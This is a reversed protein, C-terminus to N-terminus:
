GPPAAAGRYRRPLRPGFRSVVEYPITGLRDAWERATISATGQTGLLVVDDGPRVAPGDTVEVVFQDMTVAGRIPRRVGGILVEGGSSGLRRDVGDAYGLPVTAVVADREFVHHWGYSVGEGAAVAKVLTVEARVSMAPRLDVAAALGPAPEIGYLVIGPRVLDHHAAPLTLVAASNAAHCRGPEVGVDRLARLVADFRALATANEPRDPEDACALHTFTGELVLGADLVARALDVVDEPRAGVRHMGTDVKLQVPWPDSGGSAAARSAAAIGEPTYLTPTLGARRADCMGDAPPESLLLVPATIDADRLEEGEEVTAVALSTAGGALAARAVPVAGHGYGDAKVVACVEAEGSLQRVLSTNHTVADLDVHVAAHRPM